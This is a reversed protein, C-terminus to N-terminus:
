EADPFHPNYDPEHEAHDLRDQISDKLFDIEKQLSRNEEELTTVHPPTLAKIRDAQLWIIQVMDVPDALRHEQDYVQGNLTDITYVKDAM